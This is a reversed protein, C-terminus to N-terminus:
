HPTISPLAPNYAHFVTATQEAHQNLKTANYVDQIKSAIERFTLWAYNLGRKENRKRSAIIDKVVEKYRVVKLDAFFRETFQKYAPASRVEGEAANVNVNIRETHLYGARKLCKLAKAFSKPAVYEGFRLVYEEEIEHWSITKMGSETVNGIRGGILDTNPLICALVRAILRRCQVNNIGAGGWAYLAPFRKPNSIFEQCGSLIKAFEPPLHSISGDRNMRRASFGIQFKKAIEPKDKHKKALREKEAAVSAQHLDVYQQKKLKRRARYISETEAKQQKRNLEIDYSLLDTKLM